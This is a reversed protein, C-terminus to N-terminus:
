VGHRHQGCRHEDWGGGTCRLRFFVEVELEGLDNM